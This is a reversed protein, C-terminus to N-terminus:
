NFGHLNNEIVPTIALPQLLLVVHHLLRVDALREVEFQVRLQSDGDSHIRQQHLACFQNSILLWYGM